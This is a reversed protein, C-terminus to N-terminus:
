KPWLANDEYFDVVPQKLTSLKTSWVLGQLRMNLSLEVYRLDNSGWALLFAIEEWKLSAMKEGSISRNPKWVVERAQNWWATELSRIIIVLTLKQTQGSRKVLSNRFSIFSVSQAVTPGMLQFRFLVVFLFSYNCFHQDLRLQLTKYPSSKEMMVNWSQQASFTLFNWHRKFKGIGTPAEPM